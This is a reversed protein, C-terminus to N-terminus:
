MQGTLANVLRTTPVFDLSSYTARCSFTRQQVARDGVGTRTIGLECISMVGSLHLLIGEIRLVGDFRDLPTLFPRCFQWVGPPHSPSRIFELLTPSLLLRSRSSDHHRDVLQWLAM